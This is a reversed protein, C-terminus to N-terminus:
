DREIIAAYPELRQAFDEPIPISSLAKRETCVMTIQARALCEGAPIKFVEFNLRISKRGLRGVYVEVRLLDDLVAPALFDCHIQVRPLWIGYREFLESYPLGVARLLEVEAIEFFRLYSGYFILRAHDTDSWRVREEISFRQTKPQEAM